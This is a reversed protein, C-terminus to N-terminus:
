LNLNKVISKFIEGRDKYNMFQDFSASAPSFLITIPEKQKKINLKAIEYAKGIAGKLDITKHM